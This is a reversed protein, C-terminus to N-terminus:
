RFLCRVYKCYKEQRLRERKNRANRSKRKKEQKMRKLEEKAYAVFEDSYIDIYEPDEHTIREYIQNLIYFQTNKRITGSKTWIPPSTDAYHTCYTLHIGKEKYEESDEIKKIMKRKKISILTPKENDFQSHPDIMITHIYEDGM